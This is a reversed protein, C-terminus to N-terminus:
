KELGFRYQAPIPHYCEKVAKFGHMISKVVYMLIFGEDQDGAILGCMELRM